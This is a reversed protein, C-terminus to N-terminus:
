NRNLGHELTDLRRKWSQELAIVAEKDLDPSTRELISFRFGAPDRLALEKTVGKDGAVHAQWRTLINDAGYASGVYHMRDRQDIILYVGRWERLRAAWDRPLTRVEDATLM